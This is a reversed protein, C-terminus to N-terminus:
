PRRLTRAGARWRAFGVISVVAAAVVITAGAVLSAEFWFPEPFLTILNSGPAFQWTGPPFFLEHFVTFAVDFALAFVLALVVATAGIAGAALVMIRGQRGPERRLRLGAAVAVVLGGITVAVLLRVLGAVDSMHSREAADLLPADGDLAATFPGDLLLDGLLESTVRDIEAQTTDFADAVAHRQQLGSVFWPNFLALPGALTIVVALALGFV